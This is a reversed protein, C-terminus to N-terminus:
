IFFQNLIGKAKQQLSIREFLNFLPYRLVIEQDPHCEVYKQIISKYNSIEAYNDHDIFLVQFNENIDHTHTFKEMGEKFCMSMVTNTVETMFRQELADEIRNTLFCCKREKLM